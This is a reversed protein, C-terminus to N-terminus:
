QRSRRSATKLRRSCRPAFPCAELGQSLDPPTGAIPIMRDTPQDLRPTSALLGATYPHKPDEFVDLASGREVVKGAYMVRSRDCVGAVVGLDHTILIMAIGFVSFEAILELIQAQITVDLATTPEDAILLEPEPALAIAIM